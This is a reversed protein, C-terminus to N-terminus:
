GIGVVPHRIITRLEDPACKRPDSLYVEHHLRTDSFDLSCNGSPLLRHMREVTAPENDYPGIHLIQVCLGEEYTFLEVDRCDLKKKRKAQEVAWQLEDATVFEPVRLMSIFHLLDKRAYDMGKVGQQWWLGELPPVVFDFYGEIRHTGNKSMKLTYAIAYLKEISTQYVGGETNPDGSGRVALFLRRPIDIM